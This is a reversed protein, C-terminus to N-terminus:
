KFFEVVKIIGVIFGVTGALAIAVKIVVNVMKVHDTMPGMRDELQELNQEAIDTRYIHHKLQENYVGMHGEIESLRDIVQDLKDEIRVLKTNDNAM